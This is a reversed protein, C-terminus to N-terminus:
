RRLRECRVWREDDHKRVFMVMESEFRIEFGKARDKYIVMANRPDRLELKGREEGATVTMDEHVMIVIPKPEERFIVERGPKEREAREKELRERNARERAIREKESMKELRERDVRERAEREEPLVAERGPREMEPGILQVAWQGILLRHLQDINEVVFEKQGHVQLGFVLILALAMCFLVLFRIKRKM